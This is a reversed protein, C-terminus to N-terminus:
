CEVDSPNDARENFLGTSILDRDTEKLAKTIMHELVLHIDEVFEICDSPVHVQIDVMQRLQGGDFGTFGITQAGTQNALEIAKLVNSSRGSASIGIVIDGPQLLNALQGSFVNDYGEDNALASFVPVNDTLAIVRFHPLAANRTNKALDCMFHSATAASGGNGMIFVQRREQRALTLADIVQQIDNQPLKGLTDQLGSLYSTITDSMDM